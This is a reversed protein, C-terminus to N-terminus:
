TRNYRDHWDILKATIIIVIALALQALRHAACRDTNRRLQGFNSLWSNTREVAWRLGLRLPQPDAPKPEGRRRRRAIIADDISRGALDDRVSNADYGRDLHLTGIDLDLGRHGVADLTPALLRIDHRNAGDAAWGIPLGTAETAISWKWGLKGRDTPNKGTGEGGCPAKHLSGDVSVESLDLGRIRDYGAIAEEALADFIGAAIWADRRRRLTIDSVGVLHGADVWSCGLALRYVLGTFCVKDDIRPRHCGLPHEDVPPPPLLGEVAAFVADIVRPQLARM